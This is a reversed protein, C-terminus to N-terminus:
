AVDMQAAAAAAASAASAPQHVLKCVACTEGPITVHTYLVRHLRIEDYQDQFLRWEEQIVFIAVFPSLLVEQEADEATRIRVGLVDSSTIKHVFLVPASPDHTSLRHYQSEMSEYMGWDAFNLATLVTLSTCTARARNLVAGQRISRISPIDFRLDTHTRGEYVILGVPVEVAVRSNPSRFDFLTRMFERVTPIRGFHSVVSPEAYSSSYVDADMEEWTMYRKALEVAAGPPNGVHSNMVKTAQARQTKKLQLWQTQAHLNFEEAAASNNMQQQFDVVTDMGDPIANVSSLVEAQTPLRGGEAGVKWHLAM